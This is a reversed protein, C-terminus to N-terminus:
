GAAGALLSGSGSGSGSGSSPSAPSYSTSRGGAASFSASFIPLIADPSLSLGNPPRFVTRAQASPTHASQRYQKPTHTYHFSHHFHWAYLMSCSTLRCLLLMATRGCCTLQTQWLSGHESWLFPYSGPRLHPAALCQLLHLPLRALRQVPAGLRPSALRQVLAAGGSLLGISLLPINLRQRM